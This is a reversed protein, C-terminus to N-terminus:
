SHVHSFVAGFQSHVFRVEEEPIAAPIEEKGDGRGDRM